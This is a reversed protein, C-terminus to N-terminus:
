GEGCNEGTTSNFIGGENVTKGNVVSVWTFGPFSGGCQSYGGFSTVPEVNSTAPARNVYATGSVYAANATNVASTAETVASSGATVASNAVNQENVAVNYAANAYNYSDNATNQANAIQAPYGALTNNTNTISSYATNVQTTQYSITGALGAAAGSADWMNPSVVGPTYDTSDQHGAAIPSTQAFALNGALLFGALACAIASHIRNNTMTEGKHRQFRKNQQRSFLAQLRRLHKECPKRGTL